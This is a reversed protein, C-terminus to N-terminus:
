ILACVTSTFSEVPRIKHQVIKRGPPLFNSAL